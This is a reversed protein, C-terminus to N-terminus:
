TKRPRGSASIAPFEPRLKDVVRRWAKDSVTSSIKSRLEGQRPISECSTLFERAEALARSEEAITGRVAQVAAGEAHRLEAFSRQWDTDKVCLSAGKLKRFPSPRGVEHRSLLLLEYDFYEDPYNPDFRTRPFLMDGYGIGGANEWIETYHNEWDLPARYSETGDTNKRVERLEAYRIIFPSLFVVLNESIFNFVTPDITWLEPDVNLLLREGWIPLRSWEDLVSIPTDRDDSELELLDAVTQQYVTHLVSPDIKSLNKKHYIYLPIQSFLELFIEADVDHEREFDALFEDHAWDKWEKHCLSLPTFDIPSIM